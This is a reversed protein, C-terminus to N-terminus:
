LLFMWNLAPHLAWPALIAFTVLLPGITTGFNNVGGAMSLRQSGTDRSGLAIALPNAATQQLSFGLGVVILGSLLMPFSATDAAPIFMLSGIASIVLGLAIGKGYGISGLLDKEDFLFDVHLRSIRPHLRCLVRLFDDSKAM